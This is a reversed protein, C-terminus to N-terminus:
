RNILKFTCLVYEIGRIEEITWGLWRICEDVASIVDERGRIEFSGKCVYVFIGTGSGM